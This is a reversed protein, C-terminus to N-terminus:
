GFTSSSARGEASRASEEEGITSVNGRNNGEHESGGGEAAEEGTKTQRRASVAAREERSM